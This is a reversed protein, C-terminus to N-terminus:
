DGSTGVLELTSPTVAGPASTPDPFLSAPSTQARRNALKFGWFILLLAVVEGASQLGAFGFRNLTGVTGMAVGGGAILLTGWMRPALEVKFWLRWTTFLAGLVLVAAGYLNLFPTFSRPSAWGAAGIAPFGRGSLAEGGGLQSLELPATLALALTAGTLLVLLWTLGQAVRKPFVLWATGHGLFAAAFLAGSAYWVRYTLPTWGYLVQYCGLGSALAFMSVGLAWWLRQPAPKRLYDRWVFGALVLGVAVALLPWVLNSKPAASATNASTRASPRADAVLPLAPAKPDLSFYYTLTGGYMSTTQDAILVYRGPELPRQPSLTLRELKGARERVGERLPVSLGSGLSLLRYNSSNGVLKDQVLFADLRNLRLSDEPFAAQSEFWPYPHAYSKSSSNDSSKGSLTYLGRAGDPISRTAAFQTNAGVAGGLLPVFLTSLLALGLVSGGATVLSRRRRVLPHLKRSGAVSRRRLVLLLLGGSLGATLPFYVLYSNLGSATLFTDGYPSFLLPLLAWAVGPGVAALPWGVVPIGAMFWGLGPFGTLAFLLEVGVPVGRPLRRAHPVPGAVQAPYARLREGVLQRFARTQPWVLQLVALAAFLYLGFAVFQLTRGVPAVASFILPDVAHNHAAMQMGTMGPHVHQGSMVASRVGIYALGAYLVLAGVSLLALKRSLTALELRKFLSLGLLLVLPTVGGLINLQAHADPIFAGLEGAQEYWLRFSPLAQLPGQWTGVFLALACLSLATRVAPAASRSSSWVLGVFFWLGATMAIGSVMLPLSHRLGLQEVVQRFSLGEDVVKYGEAFGLTLTSLYFALSGGFLLWFLLNANPRSVPRVGLRPTLFIYFAAALLAAGMVLNIHAHSIPDIFRGADGAAQLWAENDPLVQLVGQVTGVFLAATGVGIFKLLHAYPRSAQIHRAAFITLLANLGYTWYGLGMFTATLRVPVSHWKGVLAKAEPYSLGLHVLRAEVLGLTLISLYFGSVGIVTFWFSATALSPSYLPRKAIRPLAYWTLGTLLVTGVGVVVIHTNSLDRAMHGGHQGTILWGFAGPLNKLVGHLAGVVLAGLAYLPYLPLWKDYALREAASYHTKPPGRKVAPVLWAVTGTVVGAVLLLAM